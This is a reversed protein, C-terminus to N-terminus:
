YVHVLSNLPYRKALFPQLRVHASNDYPGSDIGLFSYSYSMYNIWQVRYTHWVFREKTGSSRKEKGVIRFRFWLIIVDDNAYSAVYLAFSNVTQLLPLTHVLM